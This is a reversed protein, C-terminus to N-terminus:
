RGLLRDRRDSPFPHSGASEPHGEQWRLDVQRSWIAAAQSGDYGARTAYESGLRDAELEHERSLRNLDPCAHALIEAHVAQPETSEWYTSPNSRAWGAALDRVLQDRAAEHRLVAHAIEHGVVAALEHRNRVLETLGSCVLLDFGHEGAHIEIDCDRSDRHLYRVEIGKGAAIDQFAKQADGPFDSGEYGRRADPTGSPAPTRHEAFWACDWFNIHVEPPPQSAGSSAALLSMATLLLM